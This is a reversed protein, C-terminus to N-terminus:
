ELQKILWVAAATPTIAKHNVVSDILFNDGAHGVGMLVFVGKKQINEIELLTAENNFAEFSQDNTDGGGRVICLLDRHNWSINKLAKYIGYPDNFNILVKKIYIDQRAFVSNDEELTIFFDKLGKARASSVVYIISPKYTLETNKGVMFTGNEKQELVNKATEVMLSFQKNEKKERKSIAKKETTKIKNELKKFFKNYSISMKTGQIFSLQIMILLM